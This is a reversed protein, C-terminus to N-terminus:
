DAPKQPAVHSRQIRGLEAWLAEEIARERDDRAEGLDCSIDIMQRNM